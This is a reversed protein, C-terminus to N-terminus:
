RAGGDTDPRSPGRPAARIRRPGRIWPPALESFLAVRRGAERLTANVGDIVLRPHPLDARVRVAAPAVEAVPAAVVAELVTTFAWTRDLPAILPVASDIRHAVLNALLSPRGAITHWADEGPLRVRDTPYELGATGSTGVVEIEGPIFEEACLTVAVLGRAGDGFTLRLVATDDVEIDGARYREVEIGIPERGALALVQMVAHAFPNALAGDLVPRGDLHRRGVWAARRFYEEDRKWAGVAAVSVLDDV